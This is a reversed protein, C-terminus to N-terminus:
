IFDKIEDTQELFKESQIAESEYLEHLNREPHELMLLKVMHDISSKTAVRAVLNM